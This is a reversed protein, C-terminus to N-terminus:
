AAGQESVVTDLVRLRKADVGYRRIWLEVLLLNTGAGLWFVQAMSERAPLGFWQVLIMLYLRSLAIGLGCMAARLVWEEHKAIERSRAHNVATVMLAVLILGFIVNPVVGARGAFPYAYSVGIGTVAVAVTSIAFTWGIWKHASRFRRRFGRWFQMPIISAFLVGFAAHLGILFPRRAFAGLQNLAYDQGAVSRVTSVRIAMPLFLHELGIVLTGILVALFYVYGFRRM